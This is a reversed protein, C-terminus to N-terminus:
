KIKYKKSKEGKLIDASSPLPSVLTEDLTIATEYSPPKKDVLDQEILETAKQIPEIPVKKNEIM